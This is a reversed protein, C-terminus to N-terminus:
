NDRGDNGHDYNGPPRGYHRNGGGHDENRGQYDNSRDNGGRNGGGHGGRYNGRYDGDGHDDHGRENQARVATNAMRSAFEDHSNSRALAAASIFLSALLVLTVPRKM